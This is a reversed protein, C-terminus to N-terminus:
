GGDMSEVLLPTLPSAGHGFMTYLPPKRGNEGAINGAVAPQHSGVLFPREGPEVSVAAFHQLRRDGFV